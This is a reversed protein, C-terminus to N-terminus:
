YQTLKPLRLQRDGFKDVSLVKRILNSSEIHTSSLSMEDTALTVRSVVAAYHELNGAVQERPRSKTSELKVHSVMLPPLDIDIFSKKGPYPITM